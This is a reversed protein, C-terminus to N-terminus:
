GAATVVAARLSPDNGNVAEIFTDVISHKDQNVEVRVIRDVYVIREGRGEIVPVVQPRDDAARTASGSNARAGAVAAGGGSPIALAGIAAVGGVIGFLKASAFHAAAAAAHHAAFFPNAAAKALESFGYAVEMAAQVLAEAALGAIVGKAMAAFARGTIKEGALFSQLLGGMGQAIGSFAEVAFDKFLGIAKIHETFVPPPGIQGEIAEGINPTAPLGLIGGFGPTGPADTRRADVAIGEEILANIRDRANKSVAATHKTDELTLDHLLARRRESTLTADDMEKKLIARRDEYNKTLVELERKSAESELIGRSAVAERVRELGADRLVTAVEFTQRLDEVTVAVGASAAGEITARVRAASQKTEVLFQEQLALTRANRASLNKEQIELELKQQQTSLELGRVLINEAEIVQKVYERQDVAGKNLLERAADNREKFQRKLQDTRVRTLELRADSEEREARLREQEDQKREAEAKKRAAEQRKREAEEARAAEVEAAGPGGSRKIPEALSGVGVQPIANAGVESVFDRGLLARMFNEATPSGQLAFLDELDRKLQGAGRIINGLSSDILDFSKPGTQGTKELEDLLESIAPILQIGIQAATAQVKLGIQTLQDGFRDAQEATEGSMQLGAARVKDKFEDLSGGVELFTPILSAGSRGLFEMALATRQTGEPLQNVLKLIDSLAAEPGSKTRVGYQEFTKLLKLNGTNAENLRRQLIVLGQSVEGLSSGSKEAAVRLSSLTEASLSTKQSLDFVESGLDAANKALTFLGGAVTAVGAAVGAMKAFSSTISRTETGVTRSLGKIEREAQDASASIKFLLGIDSVAM